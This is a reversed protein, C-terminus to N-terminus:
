KAGELRGKERQEDVFKRCDVEEGLAASTQKESHDEQCASRKRM